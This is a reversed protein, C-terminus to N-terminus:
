AHSKYSAASKKIEELAFDKPKFGRIVVKDYKEKELKKIEKFHLLLEERVHAPINEYTQIEKFRPDVKEIPVAIVKLDEGAEDAQEIAGVVRAKIVCGPFTPYTVLLIVDVPDGDPYVTQPVFGYDFPCFMQHHYTRDLKFYGGDHDYEYKNSSGKPIDVVVHIYGKEEDAFAPIDKALNM